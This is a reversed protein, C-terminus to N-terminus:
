KSLKSLIEYIKNLNDERNRTKRMGIIVKRSEKSNTLKVKYFIRKYEKRLKSLNKIPFVYGYCKQQRSLKIIRSRDSWGASFMGGRPVIRGQSIIRFNTVYLTGGSIPPGSTARGWQITGGSELLIQEGDFLCYKEFIYREMELLKGAFDFGQKNLEIRFDRLPGKRKRRKNINNNLSKRVGKYLNKM